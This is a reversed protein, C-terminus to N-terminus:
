SMIAASILCLPRLSSAASFFHDKSGAVKMALWFCALVQIDVDDANFFNLGQVKSKM